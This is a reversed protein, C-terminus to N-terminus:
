LLFLLRIATPAVNGTKPLSIVMKWGLDTKRVARTMRSIPHKIQAKDCLEGVNIRPLANAPKPHAPSKDPPNVYPHEWSTVRVVGDGNMTVGALGCGVSYRGDDRREALSWHERGDDAGEFAYCACHARGDTADDSICDAPPPGKPDVEGNATDEEGHEEEKEM